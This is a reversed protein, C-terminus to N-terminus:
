CHPDRRERSAEKLKCFARINRRRHVVTCIRSTPHRDIFEDIIRGAKEVGVEGM